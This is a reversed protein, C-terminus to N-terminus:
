IYRNPVYYSYPWVAKKQKCYKDNTKNEVGESQKTKTKNEHGERHRKKICTTNSTDVDPPVSLVVIAFRAVATLVCVALVAGGGCGGEM